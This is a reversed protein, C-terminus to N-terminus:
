RIAIRFAYHGRGGTWAVELRYDGAGLAATAGRLVVVFGPEGSSTVLLRQELVLRDGRHLRFSASDGVAGDLDGLRLALTTRPAAADITATPGKDGVVTPALVLAAAPDLAPALGMGAGSMIPGGLGPPPEVAVPRLLVFLLVAATATAAAAWGGLAWSRRRLRELAAALVKTEPRRTSTTHSARPMLGAPELAAVFELVPEHGLVRLDRRCDDCRELHHRIAARELGRLTRQQRDWDSFLAAPVHVEADAPLPPQAAQADWARRCSACEELHSEMRSTEADDLLGAWFPALRRLVWKHEGSRPPGTPPKRSDSM